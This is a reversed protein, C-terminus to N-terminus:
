WDAANGLGLQGSYTVSGTFNPTITLQTYNGNRPIVFNIRYSRSQNSRAITHRDSVEQAEIAVYYTGKKEKVTYSFTDTQFDLLPWTGGMTHASTFYPLRVTLMKPRVEVFDYPARLRVKELSHLQMENGMFYFDGAMVAEQVVLEYNAEAQQRELKRKQAPTMKKEQGFASCVTAVLLLGLIIRKM